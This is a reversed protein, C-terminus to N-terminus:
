FITGNEILKLTNECFIKLQLKNAISKMTNALRSIIWVNGKIYGKSNDIRDVSPANWNLGMGIITNLKEGTLPCNEPIIIDELSISFELNANKARARASSFLRIEPVTNKYIIKKQKYEISKYIGQIKESQRYLTDYEKKCPKCWDYLGDKSGKFKHFYIATKKIGCKTCLKGDM